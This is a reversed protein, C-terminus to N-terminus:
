WREAFKGLTWNINEKAKIYNTSLTKDLQRWKVNTEIMCAYIDAYLEVRKFRNHQQILTTTRFIRDAWTPPQLGYSHFYFKDKGNKWWAVWHTGGGTTTGYQDNLNNNDDLNLIGCERRGVTCECRVWSMSSFVGRFNPIRLSKVADILEINSLPKNPLVVMNNISINM